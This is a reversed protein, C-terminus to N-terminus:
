GPPRSTATSRPCFAERPSGTHVEEPLRVVVDHDFGGAQETRVVVQTVFAGARASLSECGGMRLALTVPASDGPALRVSRAGDPGTLGTYTFLRTTSQHRALGDVTVPLRGRNTLTFTYRLTGGDVYRVQRITRDAIAFTSSADTGSVTTPGATTLTPTSRAVAAGGGGLLVLLAVAVLLVGSRRSERLM